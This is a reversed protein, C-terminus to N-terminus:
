YGIGDGVVVNFYIVVVYYIGGVYFCGWVEVVFVVLSEM